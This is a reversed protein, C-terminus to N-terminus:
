QLDDSAYPIWFSVITGEGPSSQINLESCKGYWLILRENINKLGVGGGIKTSPPIENNKNQVFGKGNDKVEFRIGNNEPSAKLIILGTETNSTFAHKVCNEVIPQLLIKLM